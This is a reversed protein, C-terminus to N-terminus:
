KGARNAFTLRRRLVSDGHRMGVAKQGHDRRNLALPDDDAQPRKAASM